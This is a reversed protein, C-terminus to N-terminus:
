ILYYNIILFSINTIYLLAWLMTFLLSLTINRQLLTLVGDYLYGTLRSREKDSSLTKLFRNLM